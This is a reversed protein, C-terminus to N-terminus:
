CLDSQLSPTWHSIAFTVQEPAYAQIPWFCSREAPLFPGNKGSTQQESINTTFLVKMTELPVGIRIRNMSTKDKNHREATYNDADQVYATQACCDQALETKKGRPTAARLPQRNQNGKKRISLVVGLATQDPKKMLVTM